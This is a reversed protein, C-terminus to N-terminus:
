TDEARGLGTDNVVRDLRVVEVEDDLGVVAQTQGAPELAEEDREGPRDVTGEVAAAPHEGDAVV